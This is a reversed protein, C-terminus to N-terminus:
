AYQEEFEAIKRNLNELRHQSAQINEELKPDNKNARADKLAFLRLQLAKSLEKNREHCAVQYGAVMTRFKYIPSSTANPGIFGLTFPDVNEMGATAAVARINDTVVQLDQMNGLRTSIENPGLALVHGAQLFVELNEKYYVREIPVLEADEELSHEFATENALVRLLHRGAYENYFRIVALLQLVAARKYTMADKAVDRNFIEPVLRELMKLTELTNLLTQRTFSLHTAGRETPFRLHFMAEMTQGANSKFRQGQFSRVAADYAPILNSEMDTALSDIDEIIRNREFHPVMSALFNKVLNM